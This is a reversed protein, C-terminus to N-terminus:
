KWTANKFDTIHAFAQGIYQNSTRIEARLERTQDDLKDDIRNLKMNTLMQQDELNWVKEKLSWVDTKLTWVDTKLESVDTKLTWVDSKLESVDTKLTWVDTKLTWVDGTLQKLQSLVTTEFDATYTM